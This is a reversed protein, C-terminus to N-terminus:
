NWTYQFIIWAFCIFKNSRLWKWVTIYRYIWFSSSNNYADQDSTITRLWNGACTTLRRRQFSTGRVDRANQGVIAINKETKRISLYLGPLASSLNIVEWHNRNLSIGVFELFLPRITTYSKIVRNHDAFWNGACDTSAARINTSVLQLKMSLSCNKGM